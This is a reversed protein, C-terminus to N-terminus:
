SGQSALAAKNADIIKKLAEETLPDVSSGPFGQWRVIGDSSIVLVHPIGRVGISKSMKGGDVALTYDMTTTEMFKKITEASEDSLGVVVLDDKFKKQFDNLKPIVARCPGCWTAWFDILLVKKKTDPQVGKLWTASEDFKPAAKGRIDNAYLEKEVYDPYGGAATLAIAGTFAAGLMLGMMWKMKMQM